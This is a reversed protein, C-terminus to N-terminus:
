FNKLFTSRKIQIFFFLVNRNNNVKKFENDIYIMDCQLYIEGEEASCVELSCDLTNQKSNEGGTM